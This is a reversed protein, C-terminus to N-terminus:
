LVDYPNSPPAIGATHRFVHGKKSGSKVRAGGAGAAGGDCSASAAPEPAVSASPAPPVIEAVSASASPAAVVLDASVAAPPAPGDDGRSCAAILLSVAAAGKSAHGRFFARIGVQAGGRFVVEGTEDDHDFSICADGREAVALAEEPDLLSVNRVSRHCANCHRLAQDGSMESVNEECPAIELKRM